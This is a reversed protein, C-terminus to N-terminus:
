NYRQPELSFYKNPNFRRSTDCFQEKPYLGFIVLFILIVLIILAYYM